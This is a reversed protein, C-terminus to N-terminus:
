GAPGTPEKTSGFEVNDLYFVGPADGIAMLVICNLTEFDPSCAVGTHVQPQANPLTLTLDYRGTAAPGLGCVIQVHVWQGAPLQLMKKGNALLTGDATTKLNPGMNYQYPDDRWDLAMLAGKEWRLDFAMKLTGSEQVLPYTIYPFFAPGIGAADTFKVSHKGSAATEDTVAATGAGRNGVHANRESQGVAYDEYTRLRTQPIEVDAPRYDAVDRVVPEEPRPWTRRDPSAYNGVTSLDIPRFGLELAPSEPKLRYDRKAPDVFQPDALVSGQDQGRKQWAEWADKGAMGPVGVIRVRGDGSHVV